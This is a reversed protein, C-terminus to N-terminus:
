VMMAQFIGKFTMKVIDQINTWEGNTELLEQVLEPSGAHMASGELDDTHRDYRSQPSRARMLRSESM